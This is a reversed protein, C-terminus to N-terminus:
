RDTILISDLYTDLVGKFITEDPLDCPKQLCIKYEFDYYGNDCICKGSNLTRHSGIPCSLCANDSASSCTDCSYHCIINTAVQCNSGGVDTLGSKCLCKTLVGISAM